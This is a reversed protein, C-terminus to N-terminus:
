NEVFNIFKKINFKKIYIPKIPRHAPISLTKGDSRIFVVHFTSKQRWEIGYTQAVTKVNGIRWDHPNLKMKALIRDAKSM